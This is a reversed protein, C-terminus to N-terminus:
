QIEPVLLGNGVKESWETVENWDIIIDKDMHFPFLEEGRSILSKSVQSYDYSM